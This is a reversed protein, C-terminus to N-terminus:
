HMYSIELMTDEQHASPCKKDNCLKNVHAFPTELLKVLTYEYPVSTMMVIIDNTM